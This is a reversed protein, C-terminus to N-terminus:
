ANEYEEIPTYTASISWFEWSVNPDIGKEILAEKFADSLADYLENSMADINDITIKNKPM